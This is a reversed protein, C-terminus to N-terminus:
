FTIQLLKLIDLIQIQFCFCSQIIWECGSQGYMARQKLTHTHWVWQVCQPTETLLDSHVSPSPPQPGQSCSRVSPDINVAARGRQLHLCWSWMRTCYPQWWCSYCSDGSQQTVVSDKYRGTQGDTWKDRVFKVWGSDNQRQETHWVTLCNKQENRETRVEKRVVDWEKEERREKEQKTMRVRRDRCSERLTGARYSSFLFKIIHRIRNWTM